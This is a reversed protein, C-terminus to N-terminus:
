DPKTLGFLRYPAGFRDPWGAYYVDTPGVAFDRVTWRGAQNHLLAEVTGGDFVGDRIRQAHRTKRYDIERGDKTRPMVVAFGWDGQVRLTRVVFQVPQGLDTEVTPRLADLLVKRM